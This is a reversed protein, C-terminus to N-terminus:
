IEVKPDEAKSNEEPPPADSVDASPPFADDPAVNAVEISLANARLRQQDAADARVILGQVRAFEADNLAGAAHAQALENLVDDATVPDDEEHTEEWVRSIWVIGVVIGATLLLLPILTSTVSFHAALWKQLQIGSM